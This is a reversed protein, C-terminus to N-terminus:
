IPKLSPDEVVEYYGKSIRLVKLQTRKDDEMLGPTTWRILNRRFSADSESNFFDKSDIQRKQNLYNEFEKSSPFKEPISISEKWFSHRKLNFWQIRKTCDPELMRGILDNFLTSFGRLRKSASLSGQSSFTIEFDKNSNPLKGTALVHMICGLSWIDSQYSHM